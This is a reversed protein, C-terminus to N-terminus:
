WQAMSSAGTKTTSSTFDSKVPLVRYIRSRVIHALLSSDLKDIFFLCEGQMGSASLGDFSYQVPIVPTDTVSFAQSASGKTPAKPPHRQYYGSLFSNHIEESIWLM